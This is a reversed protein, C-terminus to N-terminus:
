WIGIPASYTLVIIEEFSQSQQGGVSKLFPQPPLLTVPIPLPNSYLTGGRVKADPAFVGRAGGRFEVRSISKKINLGSFTFNWSIKQKM